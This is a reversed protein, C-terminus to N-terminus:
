APLAHLCHVMFIKGEASSSSDSPCQQIHYQMTKPLSCLCMPLVTWVVNNQGLVRNALRDHLVVSPLESAVPVAINLQVPLQAQLPKLQVVPRCCQRCAVQQAYFMNSKQCAKCCQALSVLQLPRGHWVTNDSRWSSGLSHMNLSQLM